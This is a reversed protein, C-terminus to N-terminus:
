LAADPDNYKQSPSMMERWEKTYLADGTDFISPPPSFGDPYRVTSGTFTQCIPCWTPSSQGEEPKNKTKSKPEECVSCLLRYWPDLPKEPRFGRSELSM